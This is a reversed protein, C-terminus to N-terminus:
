DFIALQYYYDKLHDVFALITLQEAVLMAEIVVMVVVTVVSGVIATAVVVFYDAAVISVKSVTELLNKVM